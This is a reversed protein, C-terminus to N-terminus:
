EAVTAVRRGAMRDILQALDGLKHCAKIDAEPLELEFREELGMVLQVLDLSDAGLDDTAHAEPTVKTRDTVSLQEVVVDIFPESLQM